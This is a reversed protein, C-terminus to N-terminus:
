PFDNMHGCRPCKAEQCANAEARNLLKNCEICRKEVLTPPFAASLARALGDLVAALSRMALSTPARVLGEGDANVSQKSM